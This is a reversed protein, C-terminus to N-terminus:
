KRIEEMIEQYEEDKYSDIYKRICNDVEENNKCDCDEPHICFYDIEINFGDDGYVQCFYGGENEGCDDCLTIFLGKYEM